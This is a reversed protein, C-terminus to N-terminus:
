SESNLSFRLFTDRSNAGVLVYEVHGNRLQRAIYDYERIRFERRGGPMVTFDYFLRLSGEEFHLEFANVRPTGPNELITITGEIGNSVNNSFEHLRLINNIQGDEVIVFGAQLAQEVDFYFGTAQTNVPTATFFWIGITFLFLTGLFLWKNKM